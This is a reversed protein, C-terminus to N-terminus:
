VIGTIRGHDATIHRLAVTTVERCMRTLDGDYDAVRGVYRYICMPCYVTVESGPVTEVIRLTMEM